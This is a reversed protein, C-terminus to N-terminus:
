CPFSATEGTEAIAFASPFFSDQDGHDAQKKQGKERPDDGLADVAERKESEDIM